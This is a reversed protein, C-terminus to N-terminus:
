RIGYLGITCQLDWDFTIDIVCNRLSMFQNIDIRRQIITFEMDKAEVPSWITDFPIKIAFFYTKLSSLLFCSSSKLHSFDSSITLCIMQYSVFNWKEHLEFCFHSITICDCIRIDRFTTNNIVCSM